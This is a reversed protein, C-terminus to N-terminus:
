SQDACRRFRFTVDEVKRLVNWANSANKQVELIRQLIDVLCPRSFLTLSSYSFIRISCIELLASDFSSRWVAIEDVQKRRVLMRLHDTYAPSSSCEFPTQGDINAKVVLEHADLEFLRELIAKRIM